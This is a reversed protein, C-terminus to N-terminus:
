TPLRSSSLLSSSRSLCNMGRKERSLAPVAKRTSTYRASLLPLELLPLPVSLSLNAPMIITRKASLFPLVWARREAWKLHREELYEAHEEMATAEEFFLPLNAGEAASLSEAIITNAIQSRSM